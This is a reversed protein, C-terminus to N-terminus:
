DHMTVNVHHRLAARDKSIVVLNCVDLRVQCPDMTDDAEIMWDLMVREFEKRDMEELSYDFEGESLVQKVFVCDGRNTDECVIFGNFDEEVVEFDDRSNLYALVADHVRDEMSREEM